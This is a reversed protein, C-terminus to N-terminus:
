GVLSKTHQPPPHPHPAPPPHQPPLPPPTTQGCLVPCLVSRNMCTSSPPCNVRQCQVPLLCMFMQIKRMSGCALLLHWFGHLNGLNKFVYPTCNRPSKSNPSWSTCHSTKEECSVSIFNNLGHEQHHNKGVNKRAGSTNSPSLEGHCHHFFLSCLLSM